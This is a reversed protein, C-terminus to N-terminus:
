AQEKQEKIYLSMIAAIFIILPLIKLSCLYPKHSQIDTYSQVLSGIIPPLAIGGLTNITNMIGMSISRTQLSVNQKLMTFSILFGSSCFGILFLLIAFLLKDATSFLSLICVATSIASAILVSKRQNYKDSIYGLGPSGLLFGLMLIQLLNSSQQSSVGLAEEIFPKGWVSQLVLYPAYMLAAYIMLLWVNKNTLMAKIPSEKENFIFSSKNSSVLNRHTDKEPIVMFLLFALSLGMFGIMIMTSQFGYQDLLIHVSSQGLMGGLAGCTLLLGTLMASKQPSFYQATINLASLAAFSSGIGMIIRGLIAITFNPAIAFIWTGAVCLLCAAIICTRLSYRDLLFGVPIQMIAYATFFASALFGIQLYQIGFHNMVQDTMVGLSTTLANQYCYFLAAASWILISQFSNPTKM